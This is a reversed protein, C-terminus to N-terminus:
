LKKGRMVDFDKSRRLVGHVCLEPAFTWDYVKEAVVPSSKSRGFPRVPNGALSRQEYHGVISPVAIKSFLGHDALYMGIRADDHISSPDVAECEWELVKRIFSRRAICCQGWVVNTPYIWRYGKDFYEKIAANGWHGSVVTDVEGDRLIGELNERFTNDFYVDDQLLVGYEVELQEWFRKATEWPGKHEVDWFTVPEIGQKRLGRQIRYVTAAREYCAMIGVQYDTMEQVTGPVDVTTEAM